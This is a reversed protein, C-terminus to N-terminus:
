ARATRCCETIVIFYLVNIGDWAISVVSVSRTEKASDMLGLSNEATVIIPLHKGQGM